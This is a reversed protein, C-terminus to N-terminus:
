DETPNPASKGRHNQLKQKHKIIQRDLKDTLADIASYMNEDSASAFLTGGSVQVTAEAKQTQKEVELIVHTNIVHDFHHSLRGIKENVYDRMATTVECHHGTVDIHM